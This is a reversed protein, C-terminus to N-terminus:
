DRIPWVIPTFPRAVALLESTLGRLTTLTTILPPPGAHLFHRATYPRAVRRLGGWAAGLEQRRSALAAPLVRAADQVPHPWRDNGSRRRQQVALDGPPAGRPDSAAKPQGMADTYYATQGGGNFWLGPQAYSERDCGRNGSWDDSPFNKIASVRPDWAYVLETPNAPNFVSIPDFVAPTAFARYVERGNAMVSATTSWIEYGSNLRCPSNLQMVDKVPAPRRPDCVAGVGGTNMMLQTFAKLGFEPHVLRIEASHHPMNFRKPGGTGMHFVSRSYVRNVRGEDNADGRNAIFVKFGEHAEEHGNPEGPMPHRRGIYGFRVPSAAITPEQILPRTTATSTRTSAARRIPRRIGRAIATATAATWWGGTMRPPAAPASSRGPRRRRLDHRQGAAVADAACRRHGDGREVARQQRVPQHGARPRLLHGSAGDDGPQHDAGAGVRHQLSGSRHRGRARLRHRREVSQWTLTVNSGSVQATLGTPAAPVNRCGVRVTLENSPGSVGGANGARVRVYYTGDPVNTAVASTAGMRTVVLDAAGARSGAELQYVVSGSAGASRWSLTVTSGDVEASLSAPAAPPSPAAILRSCGGVCVAAGLVVWAVAPATRSVYSLFM